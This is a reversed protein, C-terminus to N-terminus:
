ANKIMRNMNRVLPEKSANEACVFANMIFLGTMSTRILNVKTRRWNLLMM